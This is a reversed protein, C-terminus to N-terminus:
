RRECYGKNRCENVVRWQKFVKDSYNTHTLGKASGQNYSIVAQSLKGHYRKLNHALFKAAYYINNNPEMLDKETGKFGLWQATKLKIQCIGVSNTTGDDKHFASINHKSEVYCISELLYPPLIFAQTNLIFLLNIATSM